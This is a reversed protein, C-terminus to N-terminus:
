SNKEHHEVNRCNNVISAFMRSAQPDHAELLCWPESLGGLVFGKLRCFRIALLM